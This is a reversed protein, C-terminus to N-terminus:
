TSSPRRSPSPRSSRTSRRPTLEDLDKGFYGIAAAKVGYSQNGYFNQNLYAEM